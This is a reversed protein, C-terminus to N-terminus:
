LGTPLDLFTTALGTERFVLDAVAEVGFTETQYHGACLLNISEELCYHYMTHSADGTIYLDLDAAVAQDVEHTGGGSVIGITSIQERGFPLVATCAERDFCLRALVEDLSLSVPLRGQVGIKLGRYEGFPSVELLGLKKAIGANNGLGSHLDLPLHVAYLALDHELLFRLREYHSGRLALSHGWFLGHHVFLLDAGWEAARRFSEMCADVSFAVRSIERTRRDVQLGNLSADISSGSEIGLTADLFADLEGLLM